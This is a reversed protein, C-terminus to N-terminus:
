PASRETPVALFCRQHVLYIKGMSCCRFYACQPMDSMVQPVPWGLSLMKAWRDCSVQSRLRTLCVCVSVQRRYDPTGAAGSNPKCYSCNRQVSRTRYMAAGVAGDGAGIGMTLRAMPALMSATFLLRNFVLRCRGKSCPRLSVTRLSM